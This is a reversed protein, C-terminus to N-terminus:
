RIIVLIGEFDHPLLSSVYQRLRFICFILAQVRKVRTKLGLGDKVWLIETSITVFDNFNYCGGANARM